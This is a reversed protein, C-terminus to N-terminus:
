RPKKKGPEFPRDAAHVAAEHLARIEALDGPPPPMAVDLDEMTRALIQSIALNRFWKYNAPIVYWPAQDTSCENLVDEYAEIYDDWYEREEYDAKTAKWQRAPDDLRQGFRRLQEDKSIHLFFKLITTRNDHHLLKEWNNIFDYRARWIQKEVM